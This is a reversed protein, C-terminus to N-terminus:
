FLTPRTSLNIPRQFLKAWFRKRLHKTPRKQGATTSLWKGNKHVGAANGEHTARQATACGTVHKFRAPTNPKASAPEGNLSNLAGEGGPCWLHRICFAFCTSMKQAVHPAVTKGFPSPIAWSMGHPRAPWGGIKAGASRSGRECELCGWRGSAPLQNKTQSLSLTTVSFM